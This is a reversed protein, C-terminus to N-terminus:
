TKVHKDFNTMRIGRAPTMTYLIVNHGTYTKRMEVPM